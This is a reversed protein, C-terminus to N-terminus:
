RFLQGLGYIKGSLVSGHRGALAQWWEVAGQAARTCPAGHKWVAIRGASFITCNSIKPVPTVFVFPTRIQTLQMLSRYSDRKKAVHLIYDIKIKIIRIILSSDHSTICFINIIDAVKM